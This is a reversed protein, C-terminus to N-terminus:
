RREIAKKIRFIIHEIEKPTFGIIEFDNRGNITALVIEFLETSFDNAHNEPDEKKFIQYDKHLDTLTYTKESYLDYFIM